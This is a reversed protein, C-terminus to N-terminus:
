LTIINIIYYKGRPALTEKKLNHTLQYRSLKLRFLSRFWINGVNHYYLSENWDSGFIFIIYKQIINSYLFVVDDYHMSFIYSISASILYNSVIDTSNQFNIYIIRPFIVTMFHASLFRLVNDSFYHALNLTNLSVFLFSHLSSVNQLISMERDSFRVTLM